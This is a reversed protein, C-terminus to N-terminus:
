LRRFTLAKVMAKVHDPQRRLVRRAAQSWGLLWVLPLLPPHHRRYFLLRARLLWYEAGPSRGGAKASSGISGGHKHFVVAGRAFGIQFRDGTRRAWDMEEFYLFYAESMLGVTQVFRRSVALSAGIVADTSRAVKRSCYPTGAPKGGLIGRSNGTALNFRMGGLAQLTQPAHYFRLVTGVMGNGPDCRLTGLVARAAAPEVVTDNNLLWVAEIAPDKLLHRIGINNGGAFGLNDNSRILTLAAEGPANAVADHADLTLFALPKALPPSTLGALAGEPPAFPEAGGAWAAIRDLSADGSGNDVVVVKLPIDSRLLSELCEITDAAGRYNVLVVGLHPVPDPEPPQWGDDAEDVAPWAVLQARSLEVLDQAM